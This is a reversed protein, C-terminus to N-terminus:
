GFQHPHTSNRLLLKGLSFYYLLSNFTETPTHTHTHTHTNQRRQRGLPRREKPFMPRAVSYSVLSIVHLSESFPLLSAMKMIILRERGTLPYYLQQLRFLSFYQKHTEEPGPM